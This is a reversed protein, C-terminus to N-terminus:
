QRGESLNKEVKWDLNTEQSKGKLYYYAKVKRVNKIPVFLLAVTTRSFTRSILLM